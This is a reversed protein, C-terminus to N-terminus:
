VGRGALKSAATTLGILSLLGFSLLLNSSPEPVPAPPPLVYEGVIHGSNNIGYALTEDAGPFDLITFVGEDVVFGHYRHDADFYSGVIRGSNDIGFPHTFLAGPVDVTTFTDGDKIFGRYPSTADAYSGVIQGADNIGYARTQSAGPVNFATVIDGDVLLGHSFGRTGLGVDVVEVYMGVVQGRDNIGHAYTHTAGPYDYETFTDGDKLFGRGVAAISRTGVIQGANNIDHASTAYAGPFDFGTVSSGDMIFGHVPLFSPSNTYSGVIQGRDNIGMNRAGVVSTGPEGPLAFSAFSGTSEAYVFGIPGAQASAAALFLFLVARSALGFFAKM